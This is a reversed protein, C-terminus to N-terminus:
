IFILKYAFVKKTQGIRHTRNIAQLEAAKNWWPEFIFVTDAATLNLGVGGTKLTMLFVKCSADEQFRDILEQRNRTAGTMTVFDIRNEGLLEGIYEISSLFNVFVIIKHNNAISDILYDM